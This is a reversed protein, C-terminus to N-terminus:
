RFHLIQGKVRGFIHQRKELLSLYDLSVHKAFAFYITNNARNEFVLHNGDVVLIAKVVHGPLHPQAVDIFKFIM